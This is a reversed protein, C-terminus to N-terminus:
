RVGEGGHMRVVTNTIFGEDEYLLFRVLRAVELSTVFRKKPHSFARRELNDRDTRRTTMGADSIIGPSVCVLQQSVYMLKKHEVYDHLSRKCMSYWEDHSGAYASESGMVCIRARTNAELIADCAKTVKLLNIQATEIFEDQALDILKKGALYGSCFFYRDADLPMADYIARSTRVEDYLGDAALRDLLKRLEVAIQSNWGTIVLM